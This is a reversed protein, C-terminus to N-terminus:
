KKAVLSKAEPAIDHISEAEGTLKDWEGEYYSYKTTGKGTPLNSKVGQLLYHAVDAAETPKLLHPMRGSPRTLLPNSLFATLAPIM